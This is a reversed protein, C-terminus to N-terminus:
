MPMKMIAFSDLLKQPMARHFLFDATLLDSSQIRNFVYSRSAIVSHWRSDRFFSLEVKQTGDDINEFRRTIVLACPCVQQPEDDEATKIFKLVGNKISIDWDKPAAADGLDIGELKLPLNSKSKNESYNERIKRIEFKVAKEFDKLNVKGKFKTKLLAHLVPSNTKAWSCLKINEALFIEDPSFKDVKDISKDNSKISKDTLKDISKDSKVLKNSLKNTLKDTLKDILLKLKEKKGPLGYIIPSKVKGCDFSLSKRIYKCTHPKDQTM